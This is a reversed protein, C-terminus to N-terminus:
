DVRLSGLIRDGMDYGLDRDASWAGAPTEVRELFNCLGIVNFRHPFTPISVEARMWWPQDHIPQRDLWVGDISMLGNRFATPATSIWGAEAPGPKLRKKKWYFRIKCDDRVNVGRPDLVKVEFTARWEGGGIYAAYKVRGAWLQVRYVGASAISQPVLRGGQSSLDLLNHECGCFILGALLMRLSNGM